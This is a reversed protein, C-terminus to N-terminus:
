NFLPSDEMYLITREVADMATGGEKLIAEGIDLAENLTRRYEAELEDPMNEKLITGAGGHIALAYAPRDPLSVPTPSCAWLGALLLAPFLYRKM